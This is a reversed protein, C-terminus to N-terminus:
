FQGNLMPEHYSQVRRYQVTCCAIYLGQVDNIAEKIFHVDLLPQNIEPETAM